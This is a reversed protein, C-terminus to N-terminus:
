VSILMISPNEVYMKFKESFRAVSAGDIIRHDATISYSVCDIPTWMMDAGENYKPVKFAKGIAIIAASPRLITPVFYKGGINGVSSVAFTGNSFDDALLGGENSRNILDKLDNNIELISKAQVKKINPTTLGEKSDIAVSFNHDAKLVYQKIYGEDDVEPDVVANIQPFESMALSLAKLFFALVSIGGPVQDKLEKRLKLLQTADMDDSFTFTPVTLSQTMTKTMAKKMGVIKKVQDEGTVGTLPPQAIQPQRSPSSGSPMSTAAPTQEAQAAPTSRTTKGEMFNLVDSKTVRGNKGTGAIMNIDLNKQKAM